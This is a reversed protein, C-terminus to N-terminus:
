NADDFYTNLAQHIETISLAPIYAVNRYFQAFDAQRLADLVTADKITLFMQTTNPTRPFDTKVTGCGHGFVTLSVDALDPTTKRIYGRDEVRIKER